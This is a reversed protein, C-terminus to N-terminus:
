GPPRRRRRARPRQGGARAPLQRRRRARPVGARRRPRGHGRDRHRAPARRRAGRPSRRRRRRRAGALPGVARRREAPDLRVNRSSMALGDPERVTPVIELRVPLDLDSVMRRLVAVQQADKQGFFAGDPTVVNLLKAVVTCVGAFHGRGREAGELVDSLGDVRVTTAFGEPYVEEPSPAFLADVGLAEAEEADRGEDRPYAALDGAEEFQAPNVFLSVVVEDYGERAARMLAHHGGHFAGMTPVLAVSRGARRARAVHERMEAKTRITIMAPRRGRPAARRPERRPRADGGGARRVAARPRAHPRARGARQREVTAEDGRAIPGTLAREPGLAAWNEVAARVLPVLLARDVGATAALREAAGELTVLFNSAISAAAHYAARDEPAVRAPRMGLREALARAAELARPTAGDVACGAGAFAEPGAGAPVTMLPHLAFAEHGALPELGTAGSCHGVLPGPSVAAAAAAIEGDPVCLLVIAARPDARRGLPGDVSLGAARLAAALATGLRGAGVVAISDLERM